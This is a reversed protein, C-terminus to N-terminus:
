IGQLRTITSRIVTKVVRKIDLLLPKWHPCTMYKEPSAIPNINISTVNTCRKIRGKPWGVNDKTRTSPTKSTDPPRPLKNEVVLQNMRLLYTGNNITPIIASPACKIM